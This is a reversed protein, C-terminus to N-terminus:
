TPSDMENKQFRLPVENENKTEKVKLNLEDVIERVKPYRDKWYEMNRFHKVESSYSQHGLARAVRPLAIHLTDKCIYVTLRRGRVIEKKRSDGYIEQVKIHLYKAVENAVKRVQINVVEDDQSITNNLKKM